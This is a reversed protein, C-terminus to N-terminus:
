QRVGTVRLVPKKSKKTPEASSAKRAGATTAALQRQTQASVSTVLLAEFTDIFNEMTHPQGWFHHQGASGDLAGERVSMVAPLYIGMFVLRQNLIATPVSRVLSRIHTLCRLYGSNWQNELADLFLQRHSLQLITIFRLYTGEVGPEDRLNASPLVLVEIIERLTPAGERRELEDLRSNRWQDIRKAGDVVLERVLSEKTKFHYHLSGGNRQGSLAVIEKVSVGDIGREAFLRRATQKIADRTDAQPTHQRLRM